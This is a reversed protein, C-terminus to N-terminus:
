GMQLRISEHLMSVIGEDELRAACDEKSWYGMVNVSGYWSVREDVTMFRHLVQSREEHRVGSEELMRLLEAAADRKQPAYDGLSQTVVLVRVGRRQAAVCARLVQQFRSRHLLPSCIVLESQAGDIDALLDTKLSTGVFLRGEGGADGAKGRSVSRVSYGLSAYGRLRKHYMGELLPENFDVYDYVVVQKKGPFKRHLRGTYQSLPTEGSIPAALCLTDLRPLDFGEGAYRGTAVVIVPGNEAARHLEEIRERKVKATAKGCLLYANPCQEEIMELLTEAHGLRETLILPSRGEKWAALADEVILRSRVTDEAICRQASAPGWAEDEITIPRRFGTYRPLVVHEFEHCAAQEKATRKYRLPGCLMFAIPHHGDAREPTASVGYVWRARSATIVPEYTLAASHHCEDVILMGYGQLMEEPHPNQAISKYCVVDIIGTRTDKGGVKVGVPLYKKKRGRGAKPEPLPEDIELFEMLKEQWQYVLATTHVLIVTSVGRQAILYASLVTKGFATAAWLIGNDHALMAEAAPVQEPLLEGKFSVKIARGEETEDVIELATGAEAAVKELEEECGRPLMLYGGESDACSIVRPIKHVSRRMAQARYYEPNEFAALRALVAEARHSLAAQPIYLKNARVVELVSPIDDRGLPSEDVRKWPEQMGSGLDLADAVRTMALFGREGHAALIEELERPSVRHADAHQLLAWQDEYPEFGADVFLSNGELRPGAQLPLAIPNGFGRAPLTDQNPFLRDYCTFSFAKSKEMAHTLALTGLDRAKKAPVPEWFFVWIHAGDGSRSRECYASVSLEAFSAMLAQAAAKWEGHDLDIALFMTNNQSDLPYAGITERQRQEVRLDLHNTVHEETLTSYVRYACNSCGARLNCLTPKGKNDCAPSYGTRGAKSVWRQAYRDRRHAFLRMFLQLREGTGLFPYSSLAEVDVFGAASRHSHEKMATAPLAEGEVLEEPPLLCSDQPPAADALLQELAAVREELSELRAIIASLRQDAPM